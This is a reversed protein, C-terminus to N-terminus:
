EAPRGSVHEPGNEGFIIIGDEDAERAEQLYKEMEDLEDGSKNDTIRYIPMSGKQVVETVKEIVVNTGLIVLSTIQVVEAQGKALQELKHENRIAEFEDDNVIYSLEDEIITVADVGQKFTEVATVVPLGQFISRRGGIMREVPGFPAGSKVLDVVKKVSVQQVGYKHYESAILTALELRSEQNDLDFTLVKDENKIVSGNLTLAIKQM